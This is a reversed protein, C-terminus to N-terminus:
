SDKRFAWRPLDLTEIQYAATYGGWIQTSLADEYTSLASQYQERGLEIAEDSLTYVAVGFPPTKEVVVFVFATVEPTVGAAHLGDLYYAAQLHYNFNACTRAFSDPSADQATKLDVILGETSLADPRGRGWCESHRWLASAERVGAQELVSRAAPSANVAGAMKALTDAEDENVITRDGADAMFEAWAAKGAKTRRDVKPAVLILDPAEAPQLIWAHAATGFRMADTQTNSAKSAIYHAPSRRISMLDHSSVADWSLYEKFSVDPYLGPENPRSM